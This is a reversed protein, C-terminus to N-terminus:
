KESINSTDTKDEIKIRKNKIKEWSEKAISIGNKYTDSKQFDIAKKQLETATIKAKEVIEKFNM